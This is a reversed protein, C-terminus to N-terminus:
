PAEVKVNFAAAASHKGVQAIIPQMPGGGTLLTIYLDEGDAIAQRHEEDLRYALVNANHGAPAPFDPHKVLGAYITMYEPQNEAIAIVPCGLQPAIARLQKLATSM